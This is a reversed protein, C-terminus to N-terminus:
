FRYGLGTSFTFTNNSPLDIYSSYPKFKEEDYATLLFYSNKIDASVFINYPLNYILKAGAFVGFDNLEFEEERINLNFGDETYYKSEDQQYIIDVGNRYEIGGSVFLKIKKNQEKLVSYLTGAYYLVYDRHRTISTEFESNTQVKTDTYGKTNLGIFFAYKKDKPLFNYTFGFFDLPYRYLGKPNKTYYWNAVKKNYFHTFTYTLEIYHQKEKKRLTDQAFSTSAILFSISLLFARM